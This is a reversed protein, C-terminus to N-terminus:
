ENQVIQAVQKELELIKKYNKSLSNAGYENFASQIEPSDELLGKDQIKLTVGRLQDRMRDLIENFGPQMALNNIEYPDKTLDYLEEHDMPYVLRKQTENLDGSAKMLNLLHYIPYVSKRHATSAENISLDHIDNRIYKFRNDRIMRSQFHIEGIRDAAAWVYTRGEKKNLISIGQSSVTPLGAVELTSATVDILSFLSSNRGYLQYQSQIDGDLSSVILPVQIGSDYLFNKARPMPRGHDSFFFILTNKSLGMERLNDLIMGVQRDMVQISEYYDKFDERAVPHNPYYPPLQVLDPDIPGEADKEFPRHTLRLNIRAFFPQTSDLDRWQTYDYTNPDFKFLWDTKGNGPFTKINATQYGKEKLHIHIPKISDPLSPKLEEPYRMHHAGLYNQYFGTVLATRSPSCAVGTAFVHDFVLGNQALEDINPTKVLEHGYCGLDPSMDEVIIWVVNPNQGAVRTSGIVGM